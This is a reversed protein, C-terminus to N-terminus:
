KEVIVYTTLRVTENLHNRQAGLVHKVIIVIKFKFRM